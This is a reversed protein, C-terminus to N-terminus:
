FYNEMYRSLYNEKRIKFKVTTLPMVPTAATTGNHLHFFKCYRVQKYERLRHWTRMRISESIKCSKVAYLKKDMCVQCFDQNSVKSHWYDGVPTKGCKHCVALNNPTCIITIHPKFKRQTGFAMNLQYPPRKLHYPYTPPRDSTM